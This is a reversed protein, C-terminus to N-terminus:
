VTHSRIEALIDQLKRGTVKAVQKAMTGEYRASAIPMADIFDQKRKIEKLKRGKRRFYIGLNKHERETLRVTQETGPPHNQYISRPIHDYFKRIVRLDSEAVFIQILGFEPKSAFSTSSVGEGLSGRKRVPKVQTYQIPEFSASAAPPIAVFAGPVTSSASVQQGYGSFGAQYASTLQPPLSYVAHEVDQSSLGEYSVSLDGQRSVVMVSPIAQDGQIFSGHLLAQQGDIRASHFGAQQGQNVSGYTAAQQDHTVSNYPILRPYYAYDFTIAESENSQVINQLYATDKLAAPLNEYDTSNLLLAPDIPYQSSIPSAALSGRMRTAEYCPHTGLYPTAYPTNTSMKAPSEREYAGSYNM